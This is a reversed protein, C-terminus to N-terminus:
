KRGLVERVKAALQDRRYPKSLLEVGPDLRGHHMIAHEPYGSTFLVKIASRMQRVTDALERGNMGGPMVVDTLLLDFHQDENLLVLADPGSAADVVRYGLRSLQATLHDRVMSDDEVVLISEDGGIIHSVMTPAQPHADAGSARPFYLRVSTGEGPESYIRIHGGSQKVFGYVMSLGLGSGKGVEKTTFFPEFVHALVDASIGQGTDTVTIMVYQGALVDQERAAYDDDLVANAAEITLHGGEPMADRANLALNLIASDLQSPDIETQWLGQGRSMHIVISETLTRQLLGKMGEILVGADVLRPDLPQKRSFALLRKTLEEAHEAATGIMAALTQVQQSDGPNECILDANGLIVTLLNNFDHAVGGTLQGVAELKQAQRLRSEMDRGETVDVMSGVARVARGETNRIISARDIITLPHGDAHLLRYEEMWISAPGDIAAYFSQLVREKDEAHIRNAAAEPGREIRARDYGFVSQLNENWWLTGADIDWDWIVDNTAKMVLSFRENSTSLDAEARCRAIADWLREAVEEILKVDAPPWQHPSSFELGFIARLRGEQALPVHTLSVLGLHEHSALSKTLEKRPDAHIDEVVLTQGFKLLGVFHHARDEIRFAGDQEAKRGEWVCHLGQDGEGDDIEAYFVRTANFREGLAKCTMEILAAPSVAGRQQDLLKFIFDRRADEADRERELARKETLDDIALLILQHSNIRRANLM